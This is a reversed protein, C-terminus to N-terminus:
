GNMMKLNKEWTVNIFGSNLGVLRLEILITSYLVPWFNQLMLVPLILLLLEKKELMLLILEVLELLLLSLLSNILMLNLYNIMLPMLLELLMKGLKFLNLLM